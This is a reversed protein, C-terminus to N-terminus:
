LYSPKIMIKMLKQNIFEEPNDILIEKTYNNLNSRWEIKSYLM